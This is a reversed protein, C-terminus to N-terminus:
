HIDHEGRLRLTITATSIITSFTSSYRIYQAAYLGICMDLQGSSAQFGLSNGGTQQRPHHIRSRHEKM